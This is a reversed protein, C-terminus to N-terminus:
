TDYVKQYKDKMLDQHTEIHIPKTFYSEIRHCDENVICKNNIKYEISLNKQIKKFILRNTNNVDRLEKLKVIYEKNIEYLYELKQLTAHEEDLM